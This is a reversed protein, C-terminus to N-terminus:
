LFFCVKRFPPWEDEDVEVPDDESTCDLDDSTFCTATSFKSIQFLSATSADWFRVSGDQMSDSSYFM